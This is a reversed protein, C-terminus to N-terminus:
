IEDLVVARWASCYFTLNLEPQVCPKILNGEISGGIVTLDNSTGKILSNTDSLYKSSLSAKGFSSISGSHSQVSTMVQKCDKPPEGLPVYARVTPISVNIKLLDFMADNGTVVFLSEM